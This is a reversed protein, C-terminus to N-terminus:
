INDEEIYAGGWDIFRQMHVKVPEFCCNLEDSTVSFRKFNTWLHPMTYQRRIRICFGCIKKSNGIYKRGDVQSTSRKPIESQHDLEWTGEWGHILIILMAKKKSKSMRADKMRWTTPTKYNLSQRKTSQDYKMLLDQRSSTWSTLAFINGTRKENYMNIINLEDRLINRVTEKITNVIVGFIRISLRRDEEVIEHIKQVIRKTRAHGPWSPREADEYGESKLFILCRMYWKM